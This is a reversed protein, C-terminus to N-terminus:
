DGCIVERRKKIAMDETVGWLMLQESQPHHLAPSLCWGQCSPERAQSIGALKCAKLSRYYIQGSIETPM